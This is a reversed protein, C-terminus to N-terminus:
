ASLRTGKRLNGDYGLRRHQISPLGQRIAQMRERDVEALAVGPGRELRALVEGWPGVIMTHGHTERGNAHRGGQGAAIVYGLNEIARARLLVEWHAKGTHATFASPVTFLEAGRDLLGRFLEPFRLDYCVTLGLRGFPTDAVVVEKGPEICVSERYQEGSDLHVDFMHIKDYRAVREGREDILLCAARVKDPAHSKLAITGGVIWLRYTRAQTSLFDQIPGRGDAEAIGLREREQRPMLAFNEPLSVMRAGGKAAEAILQAAQTLNQAVDTGSVMQVAAVRM